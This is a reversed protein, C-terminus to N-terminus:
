ALLAVGITEHMRPDSLKYLWRDYLFHVFGLGTRMAVASATVHLALTRFDVFLAAFLAAGIIVVTTTFILFLWPKRQSFVHAAIGISAVYHNMTIIAFAFVGPWVPLWWGFKQRLAGNFFGWWLLLFPGLATAVIFAVRPLPFGNRRERLLMVAIASVFFGVGGWKVPRLLQSGFPLSPIFPIVTAAAINTLCFAKDWLRQDSRVAQKLRYISLVGFNQMGFHYANWVVYVAGLIVLPNRYGLVIPIDFPNRLLTSRATYGCAAALGLLALPLYIFKEPRSLAIQRTDSRGWTLCIPSVLHATGIIGAGLLILAQPSIWAAAALLSIGIPVGSLIWSTDWWAGRIYRM